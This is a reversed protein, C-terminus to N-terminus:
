SGLLTSFCPVKWAWTIWLWCFCQQLSCKHDSSSGRSCSFDLGLVIRAHVNWPLGGHQSGFFDPCKEQLLPLLWMYKPMTLQSQVFLCCLIIKALHTVYKPGNTNCDKVSLNNLPPQWWQVMGSHFDSSTLQPWSLAPNIVDIRQSSNSCRCCVKVISSQWTELVHWCSFAM